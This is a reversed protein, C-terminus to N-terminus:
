VVEQSINPLAAAQLESVTTALEANMAEEDKNEQFYPSQHNEQYVAQGSKTCPDKNSLLPFHSLTLCPETPLQQQVYLGYRKRRNLKYIHLREEEAAPDELKGDWRLSENIQDINQETQTSGSVTSASSLLKNIEADIHIGKVAEQIPNPDEKGLSLVQLLHATLTQHKQSKSHHKDREKRPLVEQIGKYGPSEQM